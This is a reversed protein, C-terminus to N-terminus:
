HNQNLKKEKDFLFSLLFALIKIIFKPIYTIKKKKLYNTVFNLYNTIQFLVIKCSDPNVETAGFLNWLRAAKENSTTTIHLDSKKKFFNNILLISAKRHFKSVNWNSSVLVKYKKKKFFIYKLIASHYGVLKNKKFM